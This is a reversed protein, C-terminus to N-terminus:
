LLSLQQLVTQLKEQNEPQLPSLPSRSEGAAHGCLTMATKIPVPNTEIFAAQFFPYLRFHIQQAESLRQELMARVLSVVEKPLLNSVVSIVGTAGLSMMPLTLSDDGCLLSFNPHTQCIERLVDTAQLINGSAEKVGIIGPLAAIRKLTKTEINRATRGEINYIVIPISVASAIEAFHRYLGEQTPKNYYPTVILAIDAGLKQAELTREIAEKTSYSGTGVWIPVKGKAEEVCISIIERKEESSLTPAEGTTGLALLGDIHNNLQFRINNRLGQKDLQGEQLPTILATITGQIMAVGYLSSGRTSYNKCIQNSEKIGRLKGFLPIFFWCFKMRRKAQGIKLALDGQKLDNSSM